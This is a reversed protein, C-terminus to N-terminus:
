APSLPPRHAIPTPKTSAPTTARRAAAYRRTVAREADPLSAFAEMGATGCLWVVEYVGDRRQEVYAIVADADSAPRSPDCVRWANEAIEDWRLGSQHHM